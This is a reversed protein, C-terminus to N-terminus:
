LVVCSCSRRHIRKLAQKLVGKEEKNLTSSQAILTNLCDVAFDLDDGNNLDVEQLELIQGAIQLVQNEFYVNDSIMQYGLSIARILSDSVDVSLNRERWTGISSFKEM